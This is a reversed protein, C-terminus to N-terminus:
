QLFVANDVLDGKEFNRIITLNWLDTYMQCISDWMFDLVVAIYKQFLKLNVLMDLIKIFMGSSKNVKAASAKAQGTKALTVLFIYWYCMVLLM